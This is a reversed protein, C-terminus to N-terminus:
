RESFRFRAGDKYQWVRWREGSDKKEVALIDRDTLPYLCNSVERGPRPGEPLSWFESTTQPNKSMTAM